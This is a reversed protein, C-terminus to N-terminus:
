KVDEMVESAIEFLKIMADKKNVKKTNKKLKELKKEDNFLINIKELMEFPSSSSIACKQRELFKANGKEQGSHKGIFLMPVNFYLSETGTAGGPKTVILDAINLLEPINNVYGLIKVNSVDYQKKEAELKSKLKLNNGTVIIINYDLQNKVLENVYSSTIRGRSCFFLLTKKDPNLNYTKITKKRDYNDSNFTDSIPIGSDKIKKKDYGKKILEKKEQSNGIIIYDEYKINELWFEHTKYDTVITILGSNLKGSKKYDSIISSCFYHTTIVLDPNYQIIKKELEKGKFLLFKGISTSSLKIKRNSINYILDWLKPTSFNIKEYTKQSFKGFFPASFNLIDITQIEFDGHKKFHTEIYEAIKKHGTGYSAYMILIKKM